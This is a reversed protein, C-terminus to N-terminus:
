ATVVILRPTATGDSGGPGFADVGVELTNPRAFEGHMQLVAADYASSAEALGHFRGVHRRKGGVSVIVRFRRAEKDWCVGKAGTTNDRRRKRNCANGSATAERLNCLRNDSRNGNIHDLQGDPWVGHVYLWALRHAAYDYGDLEIRCYGYVNVRSATDGPKIGPNKSVRWTFVGSESDYDLRERLQDCTMPKM